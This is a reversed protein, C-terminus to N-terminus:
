GPVRSKLSSVLTSRAGGLSVGGGLALSPRLFATAKCFAALANPFAPFGLSGAPAPPKCFAALANPFGLHARWFRPMNESTNTCLSLTLPFLVYANMKLMCCTMFAGERRGSHSLVETAGACVATTKSVVALAAQWFNQCRLCNSRALM